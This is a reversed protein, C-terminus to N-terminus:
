WVGDVRLARRQATDYGLDALVRDNDAALLPPAQEPAVRRGNLKFGATPLAADRGQGPLELRRFLQRESVQAEEMLEPVSRVAGCPVGAEALLREWEIAPRGALCAAIIGRLADQNRKRAAFERFRPDAVLDPRGLVGCLAAFQAETNAVVALPSTLTPFMGSSPAGSAAANGVPAAPVGGNVHASVISGMGAVACDLMGVDVHQAEGTRDRERLAALIAVAASLGTLYDVLPPGTRSPATEPTGTVSMIGSVAQIIHDYAPRPSLPGDQGFGSISCYVIRPNIARIAAFGVGLREATGPRWNEIMVDVGAAIERAIKVGRPDKLNLAVSRKGANCSLFTSGLGAAVLAADGGQSRMWDGQSPREIKVTEAGLLTLMYSCYPGAIVSACELVRVGQLPLRSM